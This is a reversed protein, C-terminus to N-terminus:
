QQYCYYSESALISLKEILIKSNTKDQNRGRVIPVNCSIRNIMEHACTMNDKGM